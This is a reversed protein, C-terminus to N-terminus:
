HQEQAQQRRGVIWPMAAFLLLMAAYVAGAVPDRDAFYEKVTLGRLGLVVSFEVILLIILALVGSAVLDWRSLAPIRFALFRASYFMAILMLPAEILEASREGLWPVLWTIRVAGLAFGVFFVMGFYLLARLLINLAVM